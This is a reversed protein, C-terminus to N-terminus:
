DHISTLINSTRVLTPRKQIEIQYDEEELEDGDLYVFEWTELDRDVLFESEEQSGIGEIMVYSIKYGTVNYYKDIVAEVSTLQYYELDRYIFIDGEQALYWDERRIM